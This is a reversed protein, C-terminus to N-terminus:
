SPFLHFNICLWIINAFHSLLERFSVKLPITWMINRQKCFMKCQANMARTRCVNRVFFYNVIATCAPHPSVASQKQIEPHISTILRPYQSTRIQIHVQPPTMHTIFRQKKNRYIYICHIYINLTFLRNSHVTSVGYASKWINWHSWDYQLSRSVM